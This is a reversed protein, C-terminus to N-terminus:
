ENDAAEKLAKQYSRDCNTQEITDACWACKDLNLAEIDHDTIQIPTNKLRICDSDTHYVRSQKQGRKVYKTM